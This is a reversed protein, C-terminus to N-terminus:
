RQLAVCVAQRLAEDLPILPRGLLEELPQHTSVESCLLCDLEDPLMGRYGGAAAQREAEAAPVERFRFSDRQGEQLAIRAVREVLQRYSLAEPGVLDLILPHLGARGVAALILASVDRIAIPQLQQRGDGLLTVEGTVM